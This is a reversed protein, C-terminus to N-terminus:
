LISITYDAGGKRRGYGKGEGESGTSATVPFSLENADKYTYTYISRLQIYPHVTSYGVVMM